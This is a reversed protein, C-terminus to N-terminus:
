PKRTKEALLETEVAAAEREIRVVLAEAQAWDAGRAVEQLEGCTKSLDKAGLNGSSGKLTHAVREVLGADRGALGQRLRVLHQPQEKLFIDILEAVLGASGGEELARLDRMVKPDIAGM